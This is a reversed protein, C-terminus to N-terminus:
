LWTYNPEAPNAIFERLSRLELARPVARSFPFIPTGIAGPNFVDLPVLNFHDNPIGAAIYNYSIAEVQDATPVGGLSTNFHGLLGDIAPTAIAGDNIFASIEGDYQMSRFSWNSSGVVLWQDDFVAVKSHPYVMQRGGATQYIPAYFHLSGEVAIIQHFRVTVEPNLGDTFRLTDNELWKTALPNGPDYCDHVHWNGGCNARLVTQQGGGIDYVVQTCYPNGTTGDVFRLMCHLWARRTMYSSTPSMNLPVVVVVALNAGAAARVAHRQYVARVVDPDSFHYNEFYIYNNAANIREIVKDRLWTHRTVNYGDSVSRTLAVFVERDDVHPAQMTTNHETLIERQRVTTRQNFSFDRALFEGDTGVLNAFGYWGSELTRTRNWRRMWEKEIDDTIPGELYVAADHWPQEAAPDPFSHDDAAFYGNSLNIGGIMVHRQGAVSFIAMKQHNSAGIEGEYSEFYVRARGAGPAGALAVDLAYVKDAFARNAKYVGEGEGQSQEIKKPRWMIVEVHHGARAVREIYSLLTHNSQGFYTRDGLTVDDCIMWFALRVYTLGAPDVAAQRVWEFQLRLEEFYPEGDRIFRVHNDGTATFRDAVYEFTDARAPGPNPDQPNHVAIPVRGLAHAPAQVRLTTPSVHEVKTLVVGDLLVKAGAVFDTGTLTITRGGDTHGVGPRAVQTVTPEGRYTFLAAGVADAAGPNRVVVDVAAYPAAAPIAPVTATITTPSVVVVSGAANGDITVAAGKVFDTGTITVPTGGRHTATPPDIATVTAAPQYTYGGAFTGAGAGAVVVDVPGAAHVPSTITLTVGDAAVAVIAADAGGLQVTSTHDFGAGHIIVTTGAPGANPELRTVTAYTFGGALTVDGVVVDTAGVAHAPTTVRFAGGGVRAAAQGGVTVVADDPVPGPLRLTVTEGGAALGRAPEISLGTYTYGNGLAGATGGENTVTVTVAGLAHAPVTATVATPSVVTVGTALVGDFRVKAGAAFDTGQITVPTGAPGQAPEVRTVTPVAIFTFANALTVAPEGNNNQVSVVAPGAAAAATRATITTDDVRVVNTAAVGGIQVAQIVLFGRGRITVDTGGAAPGRAPAISTVEAPAYEFAAALESESDPVGAIGPIPPAPPIPARAPNTVRVTVPGALHAPTQVTLEGPLNRGVVNALAGDIHVTTTANFHKGYVTVNTNGATTAKKPTVSTIMPPVVPIHAAFANDDGPPNLVRVELSGEAIQRTRCTISTASVRVINPAAIGDLEVRPNLPFGKGTITLDTGGTTPVAPPDFSEIRCYYAFQTAWARTPGGDVFYGPDNTVTVAVAGAVSQAPVTVTLQTDSDRVVTKATVTGFKVRVQATFDTGTIVVQGGGEVASYPPNVDNVALVM